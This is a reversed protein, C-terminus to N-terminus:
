LLIRHIETEALFFMANRSSTRAEEPVVHRGLGPLLQDLAAVEDFSSITAQYRMRLLFPQPTECQGFSYPPM